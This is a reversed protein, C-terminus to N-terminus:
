LVLPVGLTRARQELFPLDFGHLNHNEVVDPDCARVHAVVRRILEREDDDEITTAVGDPGRIAVLFIRDRAADLGTTELDLQLRRLGDFPLDRFYTRGSAVLYQEEPPLVLVESAPLERVHRVSRGLRRSAGRLLAGTLTGLDRARVLYRLAGDGALERWAIRDGAHAVDDLHAALLWPRFAVDERVLEGRVRRWVFARGEPDAWVSVIGPTPDWGWLWEDEM